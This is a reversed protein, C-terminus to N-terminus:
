SHMDSSLLSETVQAQTLYWEESQLPVIVNWEFDRQYKLAVDDLYIASLIAVALQASGHGPYGWQFDYPGGLVLDPRPDLSFTRDKEIREVRTGSKTRVGHFVVPM